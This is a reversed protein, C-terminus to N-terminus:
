KPKVPNFSEIKMEPISVGKIADRADGQINEYAYELAEEYDLGYEKESSKRLQDPTQYDKAIRKLIFHMKQMNVFQKETILIGKKM